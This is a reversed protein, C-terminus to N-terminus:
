IRYPGRTRQGLRPFLQGKKSLLELVYDGVQYDHNRRRYNERRLNYDILAQRKDRLLLLDAVYPIDLFMDRHFVLAGPSIGMTSHITSRLSHQATALAYDIMNEMQHLYEPPAAHLLTRLLNGVVQHMRECVSNAQPNAVSTPVDKIGFLTLLRQFAAGTFETGQDHVCQVPRPYRSLWAQEFKFAVQESSRNQLRILETLNTVPDICTLASITLVKGNLTINWPQDM